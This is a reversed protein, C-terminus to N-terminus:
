WRTRWIARGSWPRSSADSTITPIASFDRSRKWSARTSAGNTPLSRTGRRCGIRAGRSETEPPLIGAAIQRALTETRWADWGRDFHGRYREIWDRPAQHPSHCAGTCFYLFFPKADGGRAPRPGARHRSGRSGGHPSLGRRRQAAARDSPQRPRARARVPANRRRLIRLLTRLRPRVRARARPRRPPVTRPRSIGNASPTPPMARRCSCRPSSATGPPIPAHLRAIGDGARHRAGHRQLPSQTGDAPLLADALLAGHHPLERACGARPSATSCPTAIDSGFCGLQAFGVDDLVVLLVNPAGARARRSPPWWSTSEDHYRGIKGGFSEAM